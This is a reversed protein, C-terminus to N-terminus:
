PTPHSQGEQCIAPGPPGVRGPTRGGNRRMQAKVKAESRINITPRIRYTAEIRDNKKAYSLFTDPSNLSLDQRELFGPEITLVGREWRPKRPRPIPLAACFCKLLLGGGLVSTTKRNQRPIRFFPLQDVRSGM